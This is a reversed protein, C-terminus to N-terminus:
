MTLIAGHANAACERFIPSTEGQGKAVRHCLLAQRIMVIAMRFETIATERKWLVIDIAPTNGRRDGIEVAGHAPAGVQVDNGIGLHILDFEVACPCSDHRYRGWPALFAELASFDDKAGASQM